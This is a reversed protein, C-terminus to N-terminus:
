AVIIGELVGKNLENRNIIYNFMAAQQIQKPNKTTVLIAKINRNKSQSLRIASLLADGNLTPTELATIVYDYRQMLLKELGLFGDSVITSNYDIADVVSAIMSSYLNSPEIILIKGKQSQIVNSFQALKSEISNFNENKDNLLELAQNHLDNYDLLIDVVGQTHIRNSDILERMMDEMQHCIKTFIHFGHTGASGKLSHVIRLLNEVDGNEPLSLIEAEIESLREPLSSLFEVKLLELLDHISDNNM